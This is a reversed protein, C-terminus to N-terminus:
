VVEHELNLIQRCLTNLNAAGGLYDIFPLISQLAETQPQYSRDRALPTLWVLKWILRSLTQVATILASPDGRELGDSLMITLTGRAFGAYRPITLYASLADGLRTGGDWDAVMTSARVLAQEQNRRNLARTVRTLRTGITFIEIKQSVQALAHAFKLYNDTEAKMSGSVDILLLIRRQTLKRARQKLEIAEGDYRVAQRLTKRMDLSGGRRRAMHRLSRRQPLKQPAKRRFRRLTERQGDGAFGRLSLIEYGTPAGGADNTEEPEAIDAESADDDAVMIQDDDDQGVTPVPISQGLFHMRFLADFAGHREPPPALTAHAAQHIASMDAPGLLGVAELFSMTQEPAVAFDNERLLSPFAVFPQVARPLNQQDNM